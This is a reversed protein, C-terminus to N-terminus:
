IFLGPKRMLSSGKKLINKLIVSVKGALTINGALKKM